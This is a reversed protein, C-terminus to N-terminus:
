ASIKARAVCISGELLLDPDLLKFLVSETIKDVYGDLVFIDVCVVKSHGAHALLALINCLRLSCRELLDPVCFLKM